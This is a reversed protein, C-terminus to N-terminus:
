PVTCHKVTMARLTDLLSLQPAMLVYLGHTGFELIRNVAAVMSTRGRGALGSRAELARPLSTSGPLTLGVFAQRMVAVWM